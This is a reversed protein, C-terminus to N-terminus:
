LYPLRPKSSTIMAVLLYKGKRKKDIFHNASLELSDTCGILICTISLISIAFSANNSLLANLIAASPPFLKIFQQPCFFFLCFIAAFRIM